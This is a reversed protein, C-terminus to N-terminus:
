SGSPNVIVGDKSASATIEGRANILLVSRFNHAAGNQLLLQLREKKEADALANWDAKAVAILIESNVKATALEDGGQLTQPDLTQVSRQTVANPKAADDASPVLSYAVSGFLITLVTAAILWRNHQPRSERIIEPKKVVETKPRPETRRPQTPVPIDPESATHQHHRAMASDLRLRAALLNNAAYIMANVKERKDEGSIEQTAMRLGNGASQMKEVLAVIEAELERNFNANSRRVANEATLILRLSNKM